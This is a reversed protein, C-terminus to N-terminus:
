KTLLTVHLMGWSQSAMNETRVTVPAAIVTVVGRVADHQPLVAQCVVHEPRSMLPAARGSLDPRLSVALNSQTM